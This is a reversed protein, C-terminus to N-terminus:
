YFCRNMVNLADDRSAKCEDLEKRKKGKRGIAAKMPKLLQICSGALVVVLAIHQLMGVM